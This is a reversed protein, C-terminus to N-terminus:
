KALLSVVIAASYQKYKLPIVCSRSDASLYIDDPAGTIVIPVSIMFEEGYESRANGAITNAIEGVLDRINDESIEEGISLLLNNLLIHPATIYVCGKYKSGSIAIIGTYDHAKPNKNEILYPTGIEVKLKNVENFYKHVGNIFVQIKDEEM